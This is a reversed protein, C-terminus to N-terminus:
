NTCFIQEVSSCNQDSFNSCFKEKKVFEYSKRSVDLHVSEVQMLVRVELVVVERKPEGEFYNMKSAKPSRKESEDHFKRM